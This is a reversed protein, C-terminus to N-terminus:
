IYYPAFRKNHTFFYLCKRIYPWVGYIKLVDKYFSGALGIRPLAYINDYLSIHSLKISFAMDYIRSVECLERESFSGNPYSFFRVKKNIISELERKGEELEKKMDEYSMHTLIPHNITHAQISVLPHDSISILEEKTVCSRELTIKEKRQSIIVSLDKYSKKKLEVDDGNAFEWWYNGSFVPEVPVFITVPVNYKEIIPLLSLNTRWADDFSLFVLKTNITDQKTLVSYLERDSIFRYEKKQFWVIMRELELAQPNHYYISKIKM